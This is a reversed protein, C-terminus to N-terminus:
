ILAATGGAHWSLRPRIQVLFIKELNDDLIIAAGVWRPILNIYKWLEEQMYTQMVAHLAEIDARSTLRHSIVLDCQSLIDQHIKNPMQTIVVLSVGPERGQKAITLLPALSVSEETGCFNHAEDIVLWVMPFSKKIERGELKALEEEKRAIVRAQYIKRTLIAVILNRVSWAETARLRSVDVVSITGPSVIEDINVGQTGFVGWQNAVSLMNELANRVEKSTEEDDRIKIILDEITFEEKQEALENLNKELAIALPETRKLNFALSWEEPSFEYPAISIGGDIPIGAKKFEEVQKFPVFVKVNKFGKPELKWQKLLDKQQENPKKLSWFIGMTDIIVVALNNRFEEPLSAIEEVIVGAVYSKGTGRKGCILIVHPRLLDIFVKTTLHAEEGKGVIHKGIYGVCKEDYIELDERTRGVIVM